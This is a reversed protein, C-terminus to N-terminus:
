EEFYPEGIPFGDKYKQCKSGELVRDRCYGEDDLFYYSDEEGFLKTVPDYWCYERYIGNFPRWDCGEGEHSVTKYEKIDDNLDLFYCDKTFPTLSIKIPALTEYESGVDELIAYIRM